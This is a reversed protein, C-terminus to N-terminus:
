RDQESFSKAAQKNIHLLLQINHKLPYWPLSYHQMPKLRSTDPTYFTSLCM